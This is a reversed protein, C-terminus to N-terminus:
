QALSLFGFNRKLKLEGRLHRLLRACSVRIQLEANARNGFFFRELRSNFIECLVQFAPTIICLM